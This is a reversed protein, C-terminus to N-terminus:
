QALWAGGRPGSVSLTVRYDKGCPRAASIPSCGSIPKPANNSGAEWRESDSHCCSRIPHQASDRQDPFTRSPNLSVFIVHCSPSGTRYAPTRPAASRRLLGSHDCINFDTKACPSWRFSSDRSSMGVGAALEAAFPKRQKLWDWVPKARHQRTASRKETKTVLAQAWHSAALRYFLLCVKRGSLRSGREVQRGTAM